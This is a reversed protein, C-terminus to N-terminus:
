YDFLVLPCYAGVTSSIFAIAQIVGPNKPIKQLLTSPGTTIFSLHHFLLVFSTKTTCEEKIIVIRKVYPSSITLLCDVFGGQPQRLHFTKFVSYLWCTM